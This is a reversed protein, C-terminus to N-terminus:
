ACVTVGERATRDAFKSMSRELTRSVAFRQGENALRACEYGENSLYTTFRSFTLAGNLVEGSTMNRTYEVGAAVFEIAALVRAIALSPKFIRIEVTSGDNGCMNVADFHGAMFNNKAKAIVRSERRGSYPNTEYGQEFHAYSSSRQAFRQADIMNRNILLGFRALHATSKFANRGVHVHLGATDTNWSRAGLSAMDYLTTAFDEQAFERWSSLTRPHTVVEIGDNLSGDHKLYFDNEDDSRGRWEDALFSSNGVCETELEIGFTPVIELKLSDAYRRVVGRAGVIEGDTTHFNADPKFSYGHINRSYPYDECERRTHLCSECLFVQEDQYFDIDIGNLSQNGCDECTPSNEVCSECAQYYGFGTVQYCEDMDNQLVTNHCFHCLAHDPSHELCWRQGDEAEYGFRDIDLIQRM